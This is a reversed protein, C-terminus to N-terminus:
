AVLDLTLMTIAASDPHRRKSFGLKSALALMGANDTLTAGVLRRVGDSRAAELLAALLRTGLGRGQWEDAIVIAFEAEDPEKVYRAVGVQREHGDVAITAILARERAPDVDTFRRLEDISPTRTSM